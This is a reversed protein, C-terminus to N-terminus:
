KCLPNAKQAELTAKCGVELGKRGAPTSAAKKWAARSSELLTKVAGAGPGKAKGICSEMLKLAQECTAPLADASATTEGTLKFSDFVAHADASSMGTIAIQYFRGNAAFMLEYLTDSGDATSGSVEFGDYKGLVKVPKSKPDKLIKMVADRPAELTKPGSAPTEQWSVLVVSKGSSAKAKHQMTGSTLKKEEEQPKGPMLIEYNGPGNTYKQFGALSTGGAETPASSAVATASVTTSASATASSSAAATASASATASPAVAATATSTSATSTSTSTPAGTAGATASEKGATDDKAGCGTTAIVVIAVAAAIRNMLVDRTELLKWARARASGGWALARLM